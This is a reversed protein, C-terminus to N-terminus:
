VGLRFWRGGGDDDNEDEDNDNDLTSVHDVTGHRQWGKREIWHYRHYEM